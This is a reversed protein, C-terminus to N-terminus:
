NRPLLTTLEQYYRTGMERLAEAGFHVCSGEGCPYASPVLDDNNVFGSLPITNAINRHAADVIMKNPSFPLQNGRSDAGKSMTGVIFPIDANASRAGPGRADAAINTRLSSALEALNDAYLNACSANDSDAEGQHWLIGRLIGDTLELAINARAIARDHLLTGSLATNNKETANWGLGPLQNTSRKCFGTDSWAAPVLYIQSTTDTLAQKAFSLGFGIREGPKGNLESQYGSHLPDVAPTLPAGQNYLAPAQTFDEPSAFNSDDNGTVNLQFIRENPADAQGAEASKSNDESFGVANSQGVILYVDPKDTPEININLPTSSTPSVGDSASLLLTRTHAQIARAGIDLQLFLNTKSENSQLRVQEFEWSLDREDTPSDVRASLSVPGAEPGTGPGSMGVARTINLAISLRNGGEVLTVPTNSALQIAPSTGNYMVEQNENPGPENIPTNVDSNCGALLALLFFLTLRGSFVNRTILPQM